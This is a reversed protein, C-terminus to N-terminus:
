ANVVLRLHPQRGLSLRHFYEGRLQMRLARIEDGSLCESTIRELYIAWLDLAVRREELLESRNYTGAVGGRTGSTHNLIKEVVDRPVGFEAMLTAATRRFDHIRWNLTNLRTLEAAGPDDDQVDTERLAKEINTKAKSYGSVASKGTTTFLFDSKTRAAAKAITAALPSLPVLHENGNKARTSPITWLPESGELNDIESWQMGAVEERRQATILLLKLVPEFVPAAAFAKWLFFLEREHLVRERAREIAPRELGNTPAADILTKSTAWNMFKRLCAFARNAPCGGRARKVRSIAEDVDRRTIEALPKHEWEPFLTRLIRTYDKRTKARLPRNRGEYEELFRDRIHGFTDRQAIRRQEQDLEQQQKPDKGEEILLLTDRAAKRAAELKMLPFRGLKIRRVVRKHTGSAHDFVEVRRQVIWTKAGGASVRLAFCDILQDYHTEQGQSPPRVNQVWMDTFRLKNPTKRPESSLSEAANSM